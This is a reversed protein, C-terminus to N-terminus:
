ASNWVGSEGQKIAEYRDSNYIIITEWIAIVLTTVTDWLKEHSLCLLLMQQLKLTENSLSNVKRM